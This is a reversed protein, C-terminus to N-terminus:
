YLLGHTETYAFVIFRVAYSACCIFFTNWFGRFWGIFRSAFWFTPVCSIGAVSITLGIFYTPSEMEKLRLATFSTYISLVTNFFLLIEFQCLTKFLVSRLSRANNAKQKTDHVVRSSSLKFLFLASIITGAVYFVYVVFAGTFCNVKASPFVDSVIGSFLSGASFGVAGFM